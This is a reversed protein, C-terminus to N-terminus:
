SLSQKPHHRIKNFLIEITGNEFNYNLWSGKPQYKENKCKKMVSFSITQGKQLYSIEFVGFIGWLNIEHSLNVIKELFPGKSRFSPRTTLGKWNSRNYACRIAEEQNDKGFLKERIIREGVIKTETLSWESINKSLSLLIESWWAAWVWGRIILPITEM